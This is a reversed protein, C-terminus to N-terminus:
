GASCVMSARKCNGFVIVLGALVAFGAATKGSFVGGFGLFITLVLGTIAGSAILSGRGAWSIKGVASGKGISFTTGGASDGGLGINDSGNALGILETSILSGKGVTALAGVRGASSSKTLASLANWNTSVVKLTLVLIPPLGSPLAVM